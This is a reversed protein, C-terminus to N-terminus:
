CIRWMKMWSLLLFHAFNSFCCRFTLNFCLSVPVFYISKGSTHNKNLESASLYQTQTSLECKLTWRLRPLILRWNLESPEALERDSVSIRLFIYIIQCRISLTSYFFSFRAVIKKSTCRNCRQVFKLWQKKRLGIWQISTLAFPFRM